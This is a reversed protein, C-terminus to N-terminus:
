ITEEIQTKELLRELRGRNPSTRPMLGCVFVIGKELETIRAMAADLDSIHVYHSVDVGCFGKEKDIEPYREILTRESCVMFTDLYLDKSKDRKIKRSTLTDPNM